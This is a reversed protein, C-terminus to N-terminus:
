KQSALIRWGESRVAAQQEENLATFQPYRAKVREVRAEQEQHFKEIEEESLSGATRAELFAKNSESFQIFDEDQALTQAVQQLNAPLKQANAEYSFTFLSLFGGLFLLRLIKM